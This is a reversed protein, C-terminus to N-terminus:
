VLLHPFDPKPEPCNAIWKQVALTRPINFPRAFVKSADFYGYQHLLTAVRFDFDHSLEFINTTLSVPEIHHYKMWQIFPPMWISSDVRTLSVDLIRSVIEYDMPPQLTKLIEEAHQPPRRLIKKAIYVQENETLDDGWKKRVMQLYDSDESRYAAVFIQRRNGYTTIINILEHCVARPARYRVALYTLKTICEGLSMSFHTSFWNLHANVTWGIHQRWYSPMFYSFRHRGGVRQDPPLLDWLAINGSALIGSRVYVRSFRHPRWKNREIFRQYDSCIWPATCEPPGSRFDHVIVALEKSTYRLALAGCDDLRPLIQYKWLEPLLTEM